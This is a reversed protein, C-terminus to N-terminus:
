LCSRSRHRCGAAPSTQASDSSPRAGNVVSCSETRVALALAVRLSRPVSPETCFAAMLAPGIVYTSGTSAVTGAGDAAAVGATLASLGGAPLYTCTALQRRLSLPAAPCLM